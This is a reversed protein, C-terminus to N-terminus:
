RHSCPAEMARPACADGATNEGAPIYVSGFDTVDDDDDDDDYRQGSTNDM